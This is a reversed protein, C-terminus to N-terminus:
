GEAGGAAAPPRPAPLPYLGRSFVDASPPEIGAERAWVSLQGAHHVEHAILHATIEAYTFRLPRGERVSEFLREATRESWAGLFREVDPRCAESLRRVQELSPYADLDMPLYPVALLVRVWGQEVIVIHALTRLISGYGGTRPRRLEEAPLRAFRDFYEERRQWNYRFLPVPHM